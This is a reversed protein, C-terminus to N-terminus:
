ECECTYVWIYPSIAMDTYEYTYKNIDLYFPMTVYYRKKNTCLSINRFLDSDVGREWFESWM